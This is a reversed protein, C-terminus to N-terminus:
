RAKVLTLVFVKWWSQKKFTTTPLEDVNKWINWFTWLVNLLLIGMINLFDYHFTEKVNAHGFFFFVFSFSFFYVNVFIAMKLMWLVNEYSLMFM